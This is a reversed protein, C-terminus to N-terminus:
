HGLAKVREKSSKMNALDAMEFCGQKCCAHTCSCHSPLYGFRACCFSLSTLGGGGGGGAM